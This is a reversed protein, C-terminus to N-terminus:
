QGAFYRFYYWFSWLFGGLMLALPLAVRWLLGDEDDYPHKQM